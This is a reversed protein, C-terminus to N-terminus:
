IKNIKKMLEKGYEIMTQRQEPTKDEWGLLHLFGHVLIFFLEYEFSNGLEEAQKAIQKPCIIIEGLFDKEGVFSLVDTPKDQQRYQKNIHKIEESDVFAISINKDSKEKLELLCITFEKIKKIPLYKKSKNNIEVM